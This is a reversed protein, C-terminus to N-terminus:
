EERSSRQPIRSLQGLAHQIAPIMEHSIQFAIPGAEETLLVLANGERSLAVSCDKVTVTTGSAERHRAEEIQLIYILQRRAENTFLANYSRQDDSVFLLQYGIDVPQPCPEVRVVKIMKSGTKQAVAHVV